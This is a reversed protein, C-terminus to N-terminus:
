GFQGLERAPSRGIVNHDEFSVSAQDSLCDLDGHVFRGREREKSGDEGGFLNMMGQVSTLFTTDNGRQRYLRVRANTQGNDLFHEFREPFEPLKELWNVPCDHLDVFDTVIQFRGLFRSGQKLLPIQAIRLTAM